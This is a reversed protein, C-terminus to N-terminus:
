VQFGEMTKQLTEISTLVNGAEESVVESNYTIEQLNENVSQVAGGLEEQSQAVSGIIGTIEQVSASLEEASAGLTSSVEAYYDSDGKYQNALSEFKDYSRLVTEDLFAGCFDNRVVELIM